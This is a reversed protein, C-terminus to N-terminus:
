KIVTMMMPIIITKRNHNLTHRECQAKLKLELDVPKKEKSIIKNNFHPAKKAYIKPPVKVITKYKEPVTFSESNGARVRTM